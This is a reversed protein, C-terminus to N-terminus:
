TESPEARLESPEARPESAAEPESPEAGPESPEAGEVAFLEGLERYRPHDLTLSWAQCFTWLRAEAEYRRRKKWAAAAKPHKKLAVRFQRFPKEDALAMLLDRSGKGAEPSVAFERMWQYEADSEPYPVEVWREDSYLKEEIRERKDGSLRRPNYKRVEGSELHVWVVEHPTTDAFARAWHEWDIAM